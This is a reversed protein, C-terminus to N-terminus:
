ACLRARGDCTSVGSEGVLHLAINNRKSLKTEMEEKLSSITISRDVYVSM